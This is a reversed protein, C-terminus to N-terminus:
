PATDNDTVFATVPGGSMGDWSSDDSEAPGITINTTTTSEQTVDDNATVTVTQPTDWNAKTFVLETQDITVQENSRALPLKVNARPRGDLVVKFSRSRTSGAAETVAVATKTVIIGNIRGFTIDKSIPLQDALPDSYDLHALIFYSAGSEGKPAVLRLDLLSGDSGTTKVLNYRLGGGPQLVPLNGDTFTGIPLPIDAPSDEASGSRDIKKTNLKQDKSLYFRLKGEKSAVNGANVVVISVAFRTEADAGHGTKETLPIPSNNGDFAQSIQGVLHAAPFPPLHRRSKFGSLKVRSWAVAQAADPSTRSLHVYVAFTEADRYTHRGLVVFQGQGTAEVKGVSTKGDGWDIQALFDEARVGPASDSFSALLRDRVTPGANEVEVGVARLPTGSASIVAQGRVRDTAGPTGDIITEIMFVGPKTYTHTGKVVFGGPSTTSREIKIPSTGTSAQQESGDGWNVTATFNLPTGAPDGDQFEALIIGDLASGATGEIAVSRASIARDGYAIEAVQFRYADFPAFPNAPTGVANLLPDNFGAVGVALGQFGATSRPTFNSAIQARGDFSVSAIGYLLYDHELDFGQLPLSPAVGVPTILNEIPRLLPPDNTHDKTATVVITRTAKAGSPDTATVTLTARGADTASLMLTADSKAPVVSVNTMKVPVTPADNNTPVTAMKDLVDFGRILQGFITHKFDLFRPQAITVFFESGNTPEFNGLRVDGDLEVEGREYGGNSNAMALQGRGSFILEPRFEHAFSFGPGTVGLKGGQVVFDSVIRHFNLNDYFGAQAGGGMQGSTIPTADRFLQFEMDGEFAPVPAPMMHEDLHNPDGAYSVHVKLLPCGTRVRAMIKPNNSVVSFQLLDGDSDSALLPLVLTKGVPIIAAVRPSGNEPSLPNGLMPAAARADCAFLGTCIGLITRFLPFHSAPDMFLQPIFSFAHFIALSFRQALPFLIKKDGPVSPNAFSM